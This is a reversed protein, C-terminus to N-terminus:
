QHEAMRQLMRQLRLQQVRPNDQLWERAARRRAEILKMAKRQSPSRIDMATANM